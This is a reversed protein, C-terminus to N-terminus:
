LSIKTSAGSGIGGIAASRIASPCAHAVVPLPQAHTPTIAPPVLPPRRALLAQVRAAVACFGYYDRTSFAQLLESRMQALLSETNDVHGQLAASEGIAVSHEDLWDFSVNSRRASLNRGSSLTTDDDSDSEISNLVMSKTLTSQFEPCQSVVSLRSVELTVRTVADEIPWQRQGAEELWHALRESFLSSTSCNGGRAVFNDVTSYVFLFDPGFTASHSRPSYGPRADTSTKLSGGKRQPHVRRDQLSGRCCDFIFVKPKGSLQPVNFADMFESLYCCTGKVGVVSNHAGHGSFYFVMADACRASFAFDVLQERICDVNYRFIVDFGLMGLASGINRADVQTDPLPCRVYSENAIALAIGSTWRYKPIPSSGALVPPGSKNSGTEERDRGITHM